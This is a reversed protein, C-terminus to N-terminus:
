PLLKLAALVGVGVVILGGMRVTLALSQREILHKLETIDSKTALEPLIYDRAAEAHADAQKAPIGAKQLAKSHALTDYTLAM